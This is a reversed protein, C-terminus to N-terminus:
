PHNSLHSIMRSDSEKARKVQDEYTNWEVDLRLVSSSTHFQGLVREKLAINSLEYLAACLKISMSKM